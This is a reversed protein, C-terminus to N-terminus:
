SPGADLRRSCARPRASTQTSASIPPPPPPPTPDPRGGRSRPALPSPPFPPLRHLFHQKGAAHERRAPHAGHTDPGHAPVPFPAGLPGWKLRLMWPTAPPWPNLPLLWFSMKTGKCPFHWILRTGADVVSKWTICGSQTFLGGADNSSGAGHEILWVVPNHVDA